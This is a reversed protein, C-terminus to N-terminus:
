SRYEGTRYFSFFGAWFALTWMRHYRAHEVETANAYNLLQQARLLVPAIIRAAINPVLHLYQAAGWKIVSPYRRYTDAVGEGYTWAQRKLAKETSRNRHLLVAQPAYGIKSPYRALLRTSFDVDESTMMEENWGGIALAADRRVGMNMSAVFPLVPRVINVEADYLQTAALYHEVPTSPPFSLTKGAALVTATDRFCGALDAVWKRSAVTDADCHLIIEGRAEMLGVNRAAAPGRREAHLLQVESFSSAVDVTSDTSGNDVVIVEMMSPVAIQKRLSLLLDGITAAGNLVPIVISVSPLTSVIM